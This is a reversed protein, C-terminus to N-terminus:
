RKASVGGAAPPAAAGAGAANEREEALHRRLAETVLRGYQGLAQRHGGHDDGAVIGYFWWLQDLSVLFREHEVEAASGSARREAAASGRAVHLRVARDLAGIASRLEELAPGSLLVLRSSLRDFSDV